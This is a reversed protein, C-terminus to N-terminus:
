PALAIEGPGVALLLLLGGIIALNATTIRSRGLQQEEPLRWYAHVKLTAVVTFVALVLAAEQTRYGVILLISAVLHLVITGPLTLWILPINDHQFEAVAKRYWIAKHLGSVLFVAAISIRAVLMLWAAVQDDIALM